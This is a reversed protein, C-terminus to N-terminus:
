NTLEIQRARETQALVERASVSLSHYGGMEPVQSFASHRCDADRVPPGNRIAGPHRHEAPSSRPGEAGFHRESTRLQAAQDFAGTSSNQLDAIAAKGGGNDVIQHIRDKVVGSPTSVQRRLDPRREVPEGVLQQDESCRYFVSGQQRNSQHRAALPAALADGKLDGSGKETLSPGHAGQGRVVAGHGLLESLETGHDLY